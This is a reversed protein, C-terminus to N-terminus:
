FRIDIDGYAMGLPIPMELDNCYDIRAYPYDEIAVVQRSWWSFFADDWPDGLHGGGYRPLVNTWRDM